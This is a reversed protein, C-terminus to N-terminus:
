VYWHTMLYDFSLNRTTPVYRTAPDLEDMLTRTPHHGEPESEESTDQGSASHPSEPMTINKAVGPDAGYALLTKVIDLKNSLKDNTLAFALASQPGVAENPNIDSSELAQKVEDVNDSAIAFMLTPKPTDVAYQHLVSPARSVPATHPVIPIPRRITEGFPDNSSFQGTDDEYNDEDRELFPESLRSTPRSYNISLRWSIPPASRPEEELGILNRFFHPSLPSPTRTESSILSNRVRLPLLSSRASSLKLFFNFSSLGCFELTM